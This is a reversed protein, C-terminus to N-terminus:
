SALKGSAVAQALAVQRPLCQDRLSYREVVSRRAQERMSRFREPQALMEAARTALGEVDFFDVLLGNQGDSIVEEVPATRSGLVLAGVSMAEIMSWSLVFPYTLYVHCRSMRFLDLLDGYRLMGVFHVRSMDIRDQVESLFKDRWSGTPPASGYSVGDGGVIVVRARPRLELLRPLARMFVHYGRYPELNRNVFTVIEDGEELTVAPSGLTLSPVRAPCVNKTDVGDFVVSIRQRYASPFQARQWETPSFGWDMAELGVLLSANKLRMRLRSELENEPFEPDFNIDAGYYFEQFALVRARPWVDKVMWTEGWGPHGVVLDPAFGAAQLEIMKRACAEGRITKVEFDAAWPHGPRGSPPTPAYRHVTVGPLAMRPSIALARVEHGQAALTPALYRFQGPFNQHIFLVRM